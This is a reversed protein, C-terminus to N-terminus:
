KGGRKELMEKLRAYFPGAPSEFGASVPEDAPRPMEHLTSIHGPAVGLVLRTEGVDVLVVREKPGVAVGGVVRLAGSAAVQGPSFKRLLWATGAIAALVLGLGFLVQFLSMLSTAAVPPPQTNAAAWAM